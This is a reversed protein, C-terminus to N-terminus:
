PGASGPEKALLASDNKSHDLVPQGVLLDTVLTSSTPQKLTLVVDSQTTAKVAAVLDNTAAALNFGRKPDLAREFAFVVDDVTMKKGSHFTVNPRIRLTVSTRDPAIQFSELASPVPRLNEDYDILWANLNKLLILSNITQAYPDFNIIDVASWTVFPLAAGAAAGKLLTRRSTSRLTQSHNSEM